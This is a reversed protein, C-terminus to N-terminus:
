GDNAATQAVVAWTVNTAGASLLTNACAELTAGTTRVDDVLLITKRHVRAPQRVAFADSLNALREERSCTAQSATPRTRVLARPWHPIRLGAALRNAILTSQNYGREALRSSHLPVPVVVGFALPPARPEIARFLLDGLPRGLDPRREYKLRIIARAIPGGYVFAASRRPDGPDARLAARACPPCFAALLDVPEDCAACRPPSLVWALLELAFSAVAHM